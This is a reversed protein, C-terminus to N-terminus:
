SLLRAELELEVPTGLPLWPQTALADNSEKPQHGPAVSFTVHYTGGEHEREYTSTGDEFHLEVVFCEVGDGLCHALITGGRVPPPPEQSPFLHTIHHFDLKEYHPFFRQAQLQDLADDRNTILYGAYSFAATHDFLSV